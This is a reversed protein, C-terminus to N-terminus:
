EYKGTTPNLTYTFGNQQITKPQAPAKGAQQPSGPAPAAAPAADPAGFRNMYVDQLAKVNDDGLQSKNANLIRGYRDTVTKQADKRLAHTYDTYQKIFDQANAPSPSNTFKETVGALKGRLTDPTIGNLEAQSSVGGAAIKGVESALLHVQSNSLKSPDGYMNALSDAKDAAYMDKEAQIVAPSGRLQEMQQAVKQYTKNQVDTAKSENGQKKLEAMMQAQDNRQQIKDQTMQENSAIKERALTAQQALTAQRLETAQKTKEQQEFLAAAPKAISGEIESASLTDPLQTGFKDAMFARLDTSYQSGADQKEMAIRDNLEKVPRDSDAILSDYISEDVPKQPNAIALGMNLFAKGMQMDRRNADAANQAKVLDAKTAESPDIPKKDLQGEMDSLEDAKAKQDAADTEDTSVIHEGPGVDEHDLPVDPTKAVPAVKKKVPIADDDDSDDSDDAPASAPTPIGKVPTAKADGDGGSGLLAATGGVAGIAAAPLAAKKLAALIPSKAAEEDTIDSIGATDSYPVPLKSDTPTVDRLVMPSSDGGLTMAKSVVDPAVLSADAPVARGAAQAAAADSQAQGSLDQSYAPDHTFDTSQPFAAASSAADKGSLNGAVADDIKGGLTPAAFVSASDDAAKNAARSEALKELLESLSAM